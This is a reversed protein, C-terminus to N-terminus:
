PKPVRLCCRACCKGGFGPRARMCCAEELFLEFRKAFTRKERLQQLMQRVRRPTVGLLQAIDSTSKGSLFRAVSLIRAEDTHDSVFRVEDGDDASATMNEIFTRTSEGLIDDRDLSVAFTHAGLQRRRRKEWHGFTFQRLTGKTPDFEAGRELIILSVDQSVDERPLGYKASKANIQEAHEEPFTVALESLENPTLPMNEKEVFLLVPKVLVHCFSQAVLLPLGAGKLGTTSPYVKAHALSILRPATCPM